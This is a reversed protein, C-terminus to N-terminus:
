SYYHHHEPEEEGQDGDQQSDTDNGASTNANGQQLNSMFGGLMQQMDPNSMVSSAMQMVAPNNLLSGLDLGGNGDGGGRAGGAGGLLSAFPNAQQAGSGDRQQASDDQPPQPEPHDDHSSMDNSASSGVLGKLEEVFNRYHQNAPDCRLAQEYAALAEEYNGLAKLAHGMRAHSKVYNPDIALSQKCDEIAAEFREMSICAAARNGYFIASPKLRIAETYAHYAGQFNKAAMLENGQTKLKLAEEEVDVPPAPATSSSTQASGVTDELRPAGTVHSETLPFVQKMCDIAVQLSAADDALGKGKAEGQARQLFACVAGAVDVRDM